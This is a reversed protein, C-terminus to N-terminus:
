RIATPGTRARFLVAAAHAVSALTTHRHWAPFSRGTYAYLGTDPVAAATAPRLSRALDLLAPTPHGALDTLWFATTGHARATHEGLLTHPRLRPAGTTPRCAVRVIERRRGERDELVSVFTSRRREGRAPPAGLRGAPANGGTGLLPETGAIRLLYPIRRATFEAIATPVHAQRADLVVPLDAAPGAAGVGRLGCDLATRATGAPVLGEPVACRDRNAPAELWSPPLVLRWGVPIDGHDTVLWLGVSRQARVSRGRLHDVYHGVGVGQLGRRAVTAPRVAWAVPRVAAAVQEALAARVPRWDWPAATIFHNLRQGDDRHGASRATHRLSRGGPATLLTRVYLEATGRQDRRPLCDFVAGCLRAVPDGASM